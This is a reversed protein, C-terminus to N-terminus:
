MLELPCAPVVDEWDPRDGDELGEEGDMREAASCASRTEESASESSPTAITMFMSSVSRGM